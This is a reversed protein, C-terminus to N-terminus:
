VKLQKIVPMIGSKEFDIVMYTPNLGSLAGPNLFYVGNNYTTDPTHTHGYLVIKAENELALFYLRDLNYKVYQKHGHVAITKLGNLFGCFIEPIAGIDNNGKIIIFEKDPYNEKLRLVDNSGDGLYFIKKSSPENEIARKIYEEPTGTAHGCLFTHTHLNVKM